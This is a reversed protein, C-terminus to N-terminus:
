HLRASLVEVRRTEAALDIANVAEVEALLSMDIAQIGRYAGCVAGAIAGITDTDGGINAGYVVAKMPDGNALAVLGFATAISEGVVLDTGVYNYLDALANKEDKSRIVLEVALEIRKELPTGWASVGYARGKVAGLGAAELITQVCAGNELAAAIAFAVAAAGSIAVSTGHTPLCAEIVQDMLHDSGSPNMFGVAVARYAAGNSKGKKGSDRPDAGNRLEDLALSTSPGVIFPLAEGAADAWALLERAVAAATLQGDPTYAHLVALAQGTDDTVQGPKLRQHPHWAPAAQFHDIWGFEASIQTPSLFETPMGLADGIALGALCGYIREFHTM